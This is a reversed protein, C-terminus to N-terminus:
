VRAWYNRLAERLVEEASLKKRECLQTLIERDPSDLTIIYTKSKQKKM